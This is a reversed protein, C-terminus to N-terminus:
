VTAKKRDFRAKLQPAYLILLYLAVIPVIMYMYWYEYPIVTYFLALLPNSPSISFMYNVTLIEGASDLIGHAACYSNILLNLLHILTYSGMTIALTSGICAADKKALGLKFMLIPIGFELVHPFYYFCFPGSLLTADAMDTNMVLAALAGLSWVLLLNNVTKSRTFVAVPLAMANLSCLHLPLYALPEGWMVLNYLVAAIGSFSLVGLVATQIRSNAPKLAFYLATVMVAAAVLSLIHVAGFFGWAMLRVELIRKVFEALKGNQLLFALSKAPIYSLSLFNRSFGLFNKGIEV